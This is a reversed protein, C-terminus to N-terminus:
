EGGPPVICWEVTGFGPIFLLMYNAFGCDEAVEHRCKDSDCPVLNCAVITLSMLILLRYM